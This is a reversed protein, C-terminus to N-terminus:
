KYTYIIDKAQMLPESWDNWTTQKCLTTQQSYWYSHHNDESNVWPFYQLIPVFVITRKGMASAAHAISTCSTIIIDLQSLIGLTDQWSYTYENLPIIQPYMLLDAIDTEQQLSYWQIDDSDLYQMIMTLPVTRMVDTDQATNGFWKLGIKLKPTNIIHKYKEVFDTNAKIYPETWLEHPELNLHCVLDMSYTWYADEPVSDNLETLVQYGSDEFIKHISKTEPHDNFWIPHFGKSTLTDLFRINIIMDGYGGEAIVLLIPSSHNISEGSWYTLPCTIHEWYGLQRGYTLFLKMGYKFHGQKLYYTSLNYQITNYQENTIESRDLLPILEEDHNIGLLTEASNKILQYKIDQHNSYKKIIHLSDNPLNNCNYANALVLRYQDQFESPCISFASIAMKLANLKSHQMYLESLESYQEFSIANKSFTDLISLILSSERWSELANIVGTLKSM